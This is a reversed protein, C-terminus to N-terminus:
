LYSSFLNGANMNNFMADQTYLGKGSAAYDAAYNIMSAQASTQYGFSGAGQFMSQVKNMDAGMFTDKNVSLTKDENISIGLGSLQKAYMDTNSIMSETKSVVNRNSVKSVSSVANNYNKVFDSVAAYVDDKTKSYVSNKGGKLLKDASEKLADTTSEVKTLAKEEASTKVEAVNKKALKNVSDSKKNESYYARLLKGYSGNKISSYDNFFSAMNNGNKNGLNSFLYSYDQRTNVNMQIGM